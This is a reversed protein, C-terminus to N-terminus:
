KPLFDTDLGQAGQPSGDARGRPRAPGPVTRVRVRDQGPPQTGPRAPAQLPAQPHGPQPQAWDGEGAQSAESSASPPPQNPLSPVAAEAGMNGPMTQDVM